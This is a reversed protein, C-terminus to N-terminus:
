AFVTADLLPKLLDTWILATGGEGNTLIVFGSKRDPSFASQSHWGTYDGGHAVVDGQELHWIQWGLAWSMKRPSTAAAIQPTLMEKRSAENLRHEGAPNPQMVEILFRAFDTATTMLAGAAGYRGIAAGSPPVNPLPQGSIDHPTALARQMAPTWAYGSSAMGFPRLLTTEMFQGFDSACARHDMEFTACDTEDIRGTLRSVVSQLYYYAEGSYSWKSGPTFNIRLPTDSSRWAPLGTTHSLVRRATIEHLRPDGPVFVDRTYRTLPADLDLVGQECLTMVCYAFVPKSMSQASFVTAADVPVGSARDRVGFSGTWAIDADRIVAISVGPVQRTRMSAQIQKELESIRAAWEPHADVPAPASTQRACSLSALLSGAALGSGGLRLFARRTFSRRNGTSTQWFASFSRPTIPKVRTLPMM